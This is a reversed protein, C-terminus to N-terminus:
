KRMQDPPGLSPPGQDHDVDFLSDVPGDLRLAELQTARGTRDAAGRVMNMQQRPDVGRNGDGAQRRFDFTRSWFRWWAKLANSANSSDSQGM